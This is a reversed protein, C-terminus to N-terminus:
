LHKKIVELQKSSNGDEIEKRPAEYKKAVQQIGLVQDALRTELKSTRAQSKILSDRLPQLATVASDRSLMITEISDQSIKLSEKLTKIEADKTSPAFTNIVTLVLLIVIGAAIIWLVVPPKSVLPPLPNPTEPDTM